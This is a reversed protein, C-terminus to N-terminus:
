VKKWNSIWFLLFCVLIIILNYKVLIFDRQKNKLRFWWEPCIISSLPKKRVLPLKYKLNYNKKLDTFFHWDKFVQTKIENKLTHNTLDYHVFLQQIWVFSWQCSDIDFQNGPNQWCFGMHLLCVLSQNTHFWVWDQSM